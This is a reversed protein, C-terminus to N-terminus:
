RLLGHELVGFVMFPDLEVAVDGGDADGGM